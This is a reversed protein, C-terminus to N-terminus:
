DEEPHFKQYVVKEVNFEGNKISFVIESQVSVGITIQCDKIPHSHVIEIRKLGPHRAIDFLIVEGPSYDQYPLEQSM